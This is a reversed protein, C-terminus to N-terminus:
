TLIESHLEAPKSSMKYGLGAELEHGDEQGLSGLASIVLPHLCESMIMKKYCMSFGSMATTLSVHSYEM